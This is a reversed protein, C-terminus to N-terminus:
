KCNIKTIKSFTYCWNKGISEGQTFVIFFTIRKITETIKYVSGWNEKFYPSQIVDGEKIETAIKEM